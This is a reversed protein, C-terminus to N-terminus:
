WKYDDLCTSFNNWSNDEETLTLFEKELALIREATEQLGDDHKKLDDIAEELEELVVSFSKGGRQLSKLLKREDKTIGAKKSYTYLLKREYDDLCDFIKKSDTITRIGYLDTLEDITEFDHEMSAKEYRSVRNEKNVFSIFRRVDAEHVIFYFGNGDHTLFQVAYAKFKFGNLDLAKINNPEEKSMENKFYLFRLAKPLKAVSETKIYYYKTTGLGSLVGKLERQMNCSILSSRMTVLNFLGGLILPSVTNLPRCTRITLLSLKSQTTNYILKQTRNM